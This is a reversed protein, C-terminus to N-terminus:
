CKSVCMSCTKDHDFRTVTIKTWLWYLSLLVLYLDVMLNKLALDVTVLLAFIGFVFFVEILFRLIKRKMKVLLPKILGLNVGMIGFWVIINFTYEKITWFRLLYFIMVSISLVAGSLLGYCGICFTKGFMQFEHHAFEKCMTHHGHVIMINFISSNKKLHNKVYKTLQSPKYKEDKNGHFTSSCQKPFLAALIGFFCVISFILGVVSTRITPSEISIPQSNIMLGILFSSLISAILM